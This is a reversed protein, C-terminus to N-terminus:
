RKLFLRLVREPLSYFARDIKKMTYSKGSRGIISHRGSGIIYPEGHKFKAFFSNHGSNIWVKGKKM